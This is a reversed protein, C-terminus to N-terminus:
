TNRSFSALLAEAYEVAHEDIDEQDISSALNELMGKYKLQTEISFKPILSYVINAKWAGDTGSIITQVPAVLDDGILSLRSLVGDFVPWNADALWELLQDAIDVVDQDSVESLEHVAQLDFKDKPIM